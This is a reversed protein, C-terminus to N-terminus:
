CQDTVGKIYGPDTPRHNWVQPEPDYEIGLKKYFLGLHGIDVAWRGAKALDYALVTATPGVCLLFISTEPHSLCEKKIRGYEAWAHAVPTAVHDINRAQAMMNIPNARRELGRVLVVDRGRWLESLVAWYSIWGLYPCLEGRSIYSSGYVRGPKAIRGFRRRMSNIYTENSDIFVRSGFVNPIGVLHNPIPDHFVTTIAKTLSPHAIQSVNRRGDMHKIEGDGYRSLSDGNLVRELTKWESLVIPRRDTKRFTEAAALNAEERRKKFEAKRAKMRALYRHFRNEPVTTSM